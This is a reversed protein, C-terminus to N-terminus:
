ADEPTIDTAAKRAALPVRDIALEQMRLGRADLAQLLDGTQAGLTTRATQADEARVRVSAAEGALGIEIQLRGLNPTEMDIRVRWNALQESPLIHKNDNQEDPEILVSFAQGQWTGQLGLQGTELLAIQEQVLPRVSAPISALAANLARPEPLASQEEASLASNAHQPLSGQPEARLSELARRGESWAQVHSEYFLGSKEVANQLHQAARSPDAQEAGGLPAVQIMKPQAAAPSALESMLRATGSVRVRADGTTSLLTELKPGTNVARQPAVGDADETAATDDVATEVGVRAPGGTKGKADVAAARGDGRAAEADDVGPDIIRLLVSAGMPLPLRTRILFPKGEIDVLAENGARAEILRARVLGGATPAADTAAVPLPRGDPSLLRALVAQRPDERRDWPSLPAVTAVPRTPPMETAM